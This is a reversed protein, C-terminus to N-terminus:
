EEGDSRLRSNTLPDVADRLSDGFLNLAVVVLTIVAGPWIVTLPFVNIFKASTALSHGWSPVGAPVGIGLYTLGAEALIALGASVSLQVIMVPAINPMVHTAFVQWGTVGSHRASAVFGSNMVLKARPMVIRAFNLAYAFSCAFVVVLISAGLPVALLLAVIVTPISILTDVMVVAIESVMAHRSVLQTVILLGLLLSLTVVGLVIRLETWSGAMLWSLVDHGNGDTGLPHSASPASWAEYGNTEWIPRPTWFLSVSAIALWIVIVSLSFRGAGHSWLERFVKGAYAM